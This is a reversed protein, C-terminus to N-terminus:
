RIQCQHIWVTVTLSLILNRQMHLLSTARGVEIFYPGRTTHAAAYNVENFMVRLNGIQELREFRSSLDM